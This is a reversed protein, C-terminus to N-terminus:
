APPSAAKLPLLCCLALLSMALVLGFIVNASLGAVVPAAITPAIAQAVLIPMALRGMLVPYGRPGFLALPVQGKSITLLGNSGGYLLMFV